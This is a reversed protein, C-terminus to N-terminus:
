FIKAHHMTLSVGVEFNSYFSSTLFNASGVYGRKKDVLIVKSHLYGAKSDYIRVSFGKASGEKWERNSALMKKVLSYIAESRVLFRIKVGQKSKQSLVNMIHEFGKSDLFPNLIFVEREAKRLLNLIFSLTPVAGRMLLKENNGPTIVLPEMQNESKRELLELSLKLSDFHSINFEIIKLFRPLHEVRYSLTSELESLIGLENLFIVFEDFEQQKNSCLSCNKFAARVEKSHLQSEKYASLIHSVFCELEKRDSFSTLTAILM